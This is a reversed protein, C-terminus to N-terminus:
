RIDLLEKLIQISYECYVYNYKAKLLSNSAERQNKLVSTFEFSDYKGAEYKYTAEALIENLCNYNDLAILYKKFSVDLELVLKHMNETINNIVIDQNIKALHVKNQYIKKKKTDIYSNIPLTISIAFIGSANDKYQNGFSYSGYSPIGNEDMILRQRASSFSSGYSYTLSISPLYTLNFIRKELVAQDITADAIVAEPMKLVNLLLKKEIHRTDIQKPLQIDPKDITFDADNINILKCLHFINNELEKNLSLLSEELQTRQSKILLFESIADKKADVRKQSYEEKIKVMDILATVNAIDEIIYLIEFYTASIEQKLAVKKILSEKESVLQVSNQKKIDFINRVVNNLPLTISLNTSNYFLSKNNYQYTTEDLTRGTSSSFNNSLSLVPVYNFMM